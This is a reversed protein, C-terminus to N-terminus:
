GAVVSVSQAMEDPQPRTAFRFGAFMLAACLLEGLYLFQGYCLRDVHQCLQDIARWGCHPYQWDGPKADPPATEDTIALRSEM